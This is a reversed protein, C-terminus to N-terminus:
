TQLQQFYADVAGRLSSHFGTVPQYGQFVMWSEEVPFYTARAGYPILRQHQKSQEDLWAQLSSDPCGNFCRM